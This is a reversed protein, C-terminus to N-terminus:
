VSSKLFYADILHVMFLLSIQLRIELSVLVIRSDSRCGGLIAALENNGRSLNIKQRGSPHYIVCYTSFAKATSGM